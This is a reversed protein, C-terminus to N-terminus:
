GSKELHSTGQLDFLLQQSCHILMRTATYTGHHSCCTISCFHICQTSSVETLAGTKLFVQSLGLSTSSQTRTHTHVYSMSRTM